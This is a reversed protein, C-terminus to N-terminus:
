NNSLILNIEFSVLEAVLSNCNDLSELKHDGGNIAEFRTFDIQDFESVIILGVVPKKCQWVTCHPFYNCFIQIVM